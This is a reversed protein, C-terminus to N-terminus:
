VHCLVVTLTTFFHLWSGVLGDEVGGTGKMGWTKPNKKKHVTATQRGKKSAVMLFTYKSPHTKFEGAKKLSQAAGGCGSSVPM